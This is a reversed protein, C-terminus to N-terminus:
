PTKVIVFKVEGDSGYILTDSDTPTLQDPTGVLLTNNRFRDGNSLKETFLFKILAGNHFEYVNTKRGILTYIYPQQYATTFLVQDVNDEQSIAYTVAEQYGDVFETASTKAFVNYYHNLYSSVFFIQFLICMGLVAPAILDDTFNKAIWQWGLAALWLFGPLALLMRNSHPVDVGIAAPLVGILIWFVSFFFLKTTTPIGNKKSHVVRYIYGFFATVILFFDSLYLIGFRGDGHRLTDTQGHVLYGPLFHALYNNAIVGVTQLPSYGLRFITSQQFRDAGRGFVSDFVLPSLLLGLFLVWITVTKWSKKVLHLCTVGVLAIILPTVIKGSHYTYLSSAVFVASSVGVVARFFLQASSYSHRETFLLGIMGILGWILFNLAIGSEFGIRSFHVHWPSTAMLAGVLLAASNADLVPFQSIGSKPVWRQWLLRTLVMMGLVAAVGSIAFPLRVALLTMGLIKTFAGVIYIALPAKYDGFSRFSIPVKSLWEDRGTNAVSWGNYAIAAEDWTMGHPVQALQNFRLATAVLLILGFIILQLQLPAITPGKIWWYPQWLIYQLKQQWTANKVVFTQAHQWSMKAMKKKGFASTNTSEHNHDVPADQAFLVKWGRKKARFSLDVDEWYAPFYDMDFGGLSLWKQRDFMSSGGSAWATEGSTFTEARQHTFMGRGFNLVNKGGIVDKNAINEHELCGVAFLERDEFKEVLNHLTKSHPSVDTNVLFILEHSAQEVARNCSVAFRLNRENQLLLVPGSKSDSSWFGHEVLGDFSELEEPQTSFTSKLWVWSDDTSCDDIVVLEDGTRMAALVSPLHRELLPQGNFNPIVVSVTSM